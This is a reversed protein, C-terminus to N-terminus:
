PTAGIESEADALEPNPTVKLTREPGAVIEPFM